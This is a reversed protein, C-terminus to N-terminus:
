PARPSPAPRAPAHSSPSSYPHPTYPDSPPAPPSYASAYPKSPSPPPSYPYKPPPPMAPPTPSPARTSQNEKKRCQSHCPLHSTAPNNVLCCDLRSYRSSPTVTKPVCYTMLMNHHSPYCYLMYKDVAHNPIIPSKPLPRSLGLRAYSNMYLRRVHRRGKTNMRDPPCPPQDPEMLLFGAM